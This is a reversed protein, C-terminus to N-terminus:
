QRGNHNILRHHSFGNEGFQNPSEDKSFTVYTHHHDIMPNMGIIVYKGIHIHINETIGIIGIHVYSHKGYSHIKWIQIGHNETIEGCCTVGTLVQWALFRYDYDGAPGPGLLEFTYM